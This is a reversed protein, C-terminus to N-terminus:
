GREALSAKHDQNLQNTRRTRLEIDSGVSSRLKTLVKPRDLNPNPEGTEHFTRRGLGYLRVCQAPLFLKDTACRQQNMQPPTKENVATSM